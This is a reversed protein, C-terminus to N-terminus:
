DFDEPRYQLAEAIHHDEISRSSELDAITRALKLVKLYSRASLQFREVATMMLELSSPNLEMYKQVANNKMESNTHILDGSFRQSQIDRAKLVRSRIEASSERDATGALGRALKNMDVAPVNIHIDIRDLIPGSLKKRYRHIEKPSCICEKTEDYLYGCPCPNAAAVLIFRSPYTARERSRAITLQGDEMPQRLAEIVARPFENFEDLFLVGRHALSIEGPQPSSGGGVLGARSIIHHPARFPRKQILTGGPPINGSLSYIRTVELSEEENLSPLIGPLARALMTKGSGPSGVMLINHGGAAAIELARKVQEQGMIDSMDFDAKHSEQPGPTYLAPSIQREEKLVDRIHCLDSIAYVHIGSVVSAENASLDPLYISNFGRERAFLAALLAGKTHRLSGDLSLEGFFLSEEPIEFGEIQSLIAVAIPLDYFAGCKPVDGPALNVIIRRLPFSIGSNVLATRVRERSEAVAKDPLGVIEFAPLGKEAINVEVDIKMTEMGAFSVSAAKILM